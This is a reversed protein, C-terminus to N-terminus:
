FPSLFINLFRDFVASFPRSTFFRSMNLIVYRHFCSVCFFFRCRLFNLTLDADSLISFLSQLLSFELGKKKFM